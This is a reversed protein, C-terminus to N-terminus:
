ENIENIIPQLKARIFDIVTKFDLPEKWKIKRLFGDWYKLRFTDQPFEESFAIIERPINTQRNQFTNAIAQKLNEYNINQKSFLQFVDFFDKMRSNTNELVAMAHFKEAIVTELSYSLLNAEPIGSLLSPYAIQIPSPTIIDGFGVDISIRQVITDLHAITQVRVGKYERNIMIDEVLINEYDFRIGDEPCSLKCIDSFINRINEKSSAINKGLFDVDVTPRSEFKEYAFLLTGGKLLLSDKYRSVSLRYLLREHVFRILVQQYNLKRKKTFDLLRYRISKDIFQVM